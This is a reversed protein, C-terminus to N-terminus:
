QVKSVQVGLRQELLSELRELRQKLEANESQQAQLLAQQSAIQEQQKQIERQQRQAENLLLAPLIHYQVSRFLM